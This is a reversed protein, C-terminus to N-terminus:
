WESEPGLSMEHLVALTLGLGGGLGERELIDAIPSTRTSLCAAKPLTCLTAGEGVDAAAVVGLALGSCGASRDVLQILSRDWSIGVGEMWAELAALKAAPQQQQQREGPPVAQQLPPPM